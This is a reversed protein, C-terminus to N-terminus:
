QPAQSAAMALRRRRPYFLEVAALFQELREPGSPEAYSLRTLRDALDHVSRRGDPWRLVLVDNVINLLQYVRARTLAMETAAERVTRAPGDIGLRHRALRVAQDIADVELQDLLPLIFRELIEDNPPINACQQMETTWERVGAVRQPCLQMALHNMTATGSAIEHVTFFAEVIARLRKRGHTKMRRIDGLTPELYTRLPVNWSASPLDRLSSMLRGLPESELGLAVVSAQWKRWTVESVEDPDPVADTDSSSSVPEGDAPRAAGSPPQVEPSLDEPRTSAARSLLKVLSDMKKAGVGPTAMLEPFPTGLLEALRRDLFPTPLHRDTPLAWFRLPQKLHPAYRDASLAARLHEFRRAIRDEHFAPLNM